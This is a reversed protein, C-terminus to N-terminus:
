VACSSFQEQACDMVMAVLRSDSGSCAAIGAMSGSLLESAVVGLSDGIRVGKSVEGGGLFWKGKRKKSRGASSRQM